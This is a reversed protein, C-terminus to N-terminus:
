GMPGSRISKNPPPRSSARSVRADYLEYPLHTLPLSVGGMSSAPNGADSIGSTVKM